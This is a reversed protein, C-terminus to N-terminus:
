SITLNTFGLEKQKHERYKPSCTYVLLGRANTFLPNDVFIVNKLRGKQKLIMKLSN